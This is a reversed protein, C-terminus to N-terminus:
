TTITVEINGRTARSYPCSEHAKAVLDRVVEDAADPIRVILEVRLGLGGDDPLRGIEVRATVDSGEADVGAARAHFLLAGHFCGAYGAAFLQEPNTGDEGARGGMGPPKSLGVDLRGDDSRVRGDRGMDATATATYLVKELASM